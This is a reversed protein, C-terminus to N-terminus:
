AVEAQDGKEELWVKRDSSRKKALLMDLLQEDGDGTELQVLANPEEAGSAVIGRPRHYKFSRGMLRIDNALLASAVTDGHYGDGSKGDFTQVFWRYPTDPNLM